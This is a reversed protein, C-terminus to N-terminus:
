FCCNLLGNKSKVGSRGTTHYFYNNKFWDYSIKLKAKSEIILYQSLHNQHDQITKLFHCLNRTIMLPLCNVRQEWDAKAQEIREKRSSVFNWWIYRDGLPEGGLLILTTKEKAQITPAGNKDFVLMQGAKYTQYDVEISGAIIYNGKKPITRRCLRKLM